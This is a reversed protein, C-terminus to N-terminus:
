CLCRVFNRLTELEAFNYVDMSQVSCQCEYEGQRAQAASHVQLEAVDVEMKDSQCEQGKNQGVM